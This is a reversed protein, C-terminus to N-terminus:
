PVSDSGLGSATMTLVAWHGCHFPQVKVCYRAPNSMSRRLAVALGTLIAVAGLASTRGNRRTSSQADDGVFVALGAVPLDQCMTCLESMLAFDQMNM